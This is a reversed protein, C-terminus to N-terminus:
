ERKDTRKKNKQRKQKSKKQGGPLVEAQLGHARLAGITSEFLHQRTRSRVDRNQMLYVTGAPRTGDSAAGRALYREIEPVSNGRLGTYGLMVALRYRDTEGMGDAGPGRGWLYRSRFGRAPELRLGEVPAVVEDRGRGARSTLLTPPAGVPRRAYHNAYTSLYDIRGDEVKRAFFSMGTLSGGEGRLKDRGLGHAKEDASFDVAYPFGASYAVLDVERTLGTKELHAGVPALVRRRFDEVSITDGAPLGKLWVVHHEPLERLRIWANAVQLSAPSDANVVLLTTEPDGGAHATALPVVLGWCLRLLNRVRCGFRMKGGRRDM